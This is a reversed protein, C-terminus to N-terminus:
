TSDTYESGLRETDLSLQAHPWFLQMQNSQSQKIQKSTNYKDLRNTTMENRGATATATTTALKAGEHLSGMLVKLRCRGVEISTGTDLTTAMIKPFDYEKILYHNQLRHNSRRELNTRMRAASGLRADVESVFM